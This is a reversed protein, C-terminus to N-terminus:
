KLLGWREAMSASSDIPVLLQERDAGRMIKQGMGALEQAIPKSCEFILEDHVQILPLCTESPFSQFYLVIPTIEAMALKILGQAMSQIPMNAAEREAESVKDQLVSRVAPKLATRGFLDWCMGYQRLRRFTMEMWQKIGPYAAFWEVIYQQCEEVTFYAGGEALINRQLGEATLGFLIGFGLNKAPARQDRKFVQWEKKEEKTLIRTKTKEEEEAKARLENIRGIALKFMAVATRDHIDWGNRFVQAMAQDGFYYAAMHAAVRMEIQCNKTVVGCSLVYNHDPEVTIARMPQLGIFEKRILRHNRETRRRKFKAFLNRVHGETVGFRIAIKRAPVRQLRLVCIKHRDGAGLKANPNRVGRYSRRNKLAERLRSIRLTHDQRRYNKKSHGSWHRKSHKYELNEPRNDRHNENKHHVHFGAPKPGYVAEAILQHQKTYYIAAKSYWTKYGGIDGERCPVMREGVELQDTTKDVIKWPKWKRTIKVPWKHDASAIVSKGNDFTLRYSPLTPVDATRTVEGWKIGGKRFTLVKDGPIIDRIAVPGHVTEVLTNPHLCLDMSVLVNNRGAIFGNRIQTGWEGRVPINQLNLFGQSRDGSSLRGTATRTNKFITRLREDAQVMRPIPLVFNNLLTNVERFNIVTEVFPHMKTMSSLVDDDTSYLGDKTRKPRGPPVLGLLEYLVHAVQPPSSLKLNPAQSGVLIQAEETFLRKQYELKTRLDEFHSKDVRIGNTHMQDILPM